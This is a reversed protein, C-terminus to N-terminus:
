NCIGMPVADFAGICAGQVPGDLLVDAMSILGGGLSCAAAYAFREQPVAIAGSRLELRAGNDAYAGFSPARSPGVEVDINEAVVCAANGTLYLGYSGFSPLGEKNAVLTVNRLALDSTSHGYLAIAFFGSFPGALECRITLDRITGHSAAMVTAAISAWPAGSGMVTTTDQGSGELSVYDKLRVPGAHVGPGLRVLWPNGPSADTISDVAQQVSM